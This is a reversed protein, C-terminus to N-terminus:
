EVKIDDWSATVDNGVDPAVYLGLGAKAEPALTPTDDQAVVQWETPREASAMWASALLRTGGGVNEIRVAIAIPADTKLDVFREALEVEEFSGLIRYLGVTARGDARLRVQARYQNRTDVYRPILSVRVGSGGITGSVSVTASMTRNSTPVGSLAVSPGQAPSATVVARGARVRYPSSAWSANGVAGLPGDGRDFNDVFAPAAPEVVVPPPVTKTTATATTTTTTVASVTSTSPAAAKERTGVLTTVAGLALAAVVGLAFVLKVKRRSSPTQAGSAAALHLAVREMSPRKEPSKAMTSAVLQALTPPVDSRTLPPPPETVIRAMLVTPTIRERGFPAHGELATYLTSGLGYVDTAATGSEGDLLEPAAHALTVADVPSTADGTLRSVGFDAVVAAGDSDFLVNSPTVDCHVIGARHAALLADAMRRGIAVVDIAPLPGTAAIRDALSGGQYDHLVLYPQGETTIGADYVTAIAPHESLKVLAARERRFSEAHNSDLLKVAVARGLSDQTGSWVSASGGRGIEVGITVGPISPIGRDASGIGGAAM